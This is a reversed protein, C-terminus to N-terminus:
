DKISVYKLRIEKEVFKERLVRYKTSIHKTKSHLVLNKSMSVISTNDYYIIVHEIFEIGIDTLIKKM